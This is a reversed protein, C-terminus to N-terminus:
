RKREVVLKVVSSGFEEQQSYGEETGDGEILADSLTEARIYDGHQSLANLLHRSDNNDNDSALTYRTMIRDSVDFGASKRMDNVVRVLDRAIGEARLADDM